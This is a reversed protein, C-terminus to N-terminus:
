FNNTSLLAISNSFGNVLTGTLRTFYGCPNGRLDTEERITVKSDEVKLVRARHDLNDRVKLVTKSAKNDRLVLAATKIKIETEAMRVLDAITIVLVVTKILTITVIVVTVVTVV